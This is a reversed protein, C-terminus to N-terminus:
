AGRDHESFQAEDALITDLLDIAKSVDSISQECRDQEFRMQGRQEMFSKRAKVLRELYRVEDAVCQQKADAALSYVISQEVQM